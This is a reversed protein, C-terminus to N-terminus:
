SRRFAYSRGGAAGAARGSRARDSRGRAAQRDDSLGHHAAAGAPSRREARNEPKLSAALDQEALATPDVHVSFDPM